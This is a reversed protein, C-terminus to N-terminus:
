CWIQQSFNTECCQVDTLNFVHSHSLIEMNQQWLAGCPPSPAILFQSPFLMSYCMKLAGHARKWVKSQFWVLTTANLARLRSVLLRSMVSGLHLSYGTPPHFCNFRTFVQRWCFCVFFSGLRFVLCQVLCKMLNWWHQKQRQAQSWTLKGPCTSLSICLTGPSCRRHAECLFVCIRQM